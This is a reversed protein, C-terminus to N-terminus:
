RPCSAPRRFSRAPPLDWGSSCLQRVVGHGRLGRYLDDGFEAGPDGGAAGPGAGCSPERDHEPESPEGRGLDPVARDVGGGVGLGLGAPRLGRGSCHFGGTGRAADWAPRDSSRGLGGGSDWGTSWRHWGRSGPRWGLIPRASAHRSLRLARLVGDHLGRLGDVGARDGAGEARRAADIGKFPARAEGLVGAGRLRCADAVRRGGARRLGCAVRCAGDAGGGGLGRVGHEADLGDAGPGSLREGAGASGERRGAWLDRAAGRRDGDGGGDAGGRVGGAGTCAGDGGDGGGADGAGAGVGAVARDPGGGPGADAREAGHGAGFLAQAMMVDAAGAGPFDAAVSVAIPSLALSNSGVIAVAATLLVIDPLRM